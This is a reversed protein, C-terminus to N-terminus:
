TGHEEGGPFQRLHWEPRIHTVPAFYTDIMIRAIDGSVGFSFVADANLQIDQAVFNTILNATPNNGDRVPGLVSTSYVQQGQLTDPASATLVFKEFSDITTQSRGIGITLNFRVTVEQSVVPPRTALVMEVVKVSFFFNWTEPRGYSIRNLQSSVVTQNFLNVQPCEVIKSGGWLHWPPVGQPM